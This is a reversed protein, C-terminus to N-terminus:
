IRPPGPYPQFVIRGSRPPPTQIHVWRAFTGDSRKKITYKPDEIALNAESLKKQNALLWVGLDGFNDSLDVAQCTIHRSRLAGGISANYKAPRWGSTITFKKGNQWEPYCKLVSNVRHLLDIANAEHESTYEEVFHSMKHRGMLYQELTVPPSAPAELVPAKRAFLSLLIEIIKNM